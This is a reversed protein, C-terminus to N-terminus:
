LWREVYTMTVTAVSATVSLTNSGPVLYFYKSRWDLLTMSLNNNLTIKETEFNVVVKDGAVFSRILKVIKEGNTIEFNTSSATFDITFTPKTKASGAYTITTSSGISSSREVGHKDPDTCLIAITGKGIFLIEDWDPQGDLAGYYTVSPEDSFVIPVEKETNLTINLDNVKQRVDELSNGVLEFGVPIIREPIERRHFTSGKKGPIKSRIINQSLPGRGGISTVNIMSSLDTGNYTIM